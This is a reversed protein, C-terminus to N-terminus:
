HYEGKQRRKKHPHSHSFSSGFHKKFIQNLSEKVEKQFKEYHSMLEKAEPTLLSGGGFVGGVKKNLLAFGLRGELLQILRWAKSYSMNMQGAANRLSGSKEVRKLLEFPGNGFAKGNQDLWVKYGIKM